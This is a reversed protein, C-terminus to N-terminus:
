TFNMFLKFQKNTLYFFSQPPRANPIVENLKIPQKLPIVKNIVIAYGENKGFFYQRLKSRTIGGKYQKSIEWLFTKRNKIVEKLELIAVVKMEPSTSYLVLHSIPKSAWVRRFEVNKTGNLIKNVYEPHVSILATKYEQLM